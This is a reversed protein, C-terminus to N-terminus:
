VSTLILVKSNSSMVAENLQRTNIQINFLTKHIQVFGTPLSCVYREPDGRENPRRAERPRRAAGGNEWSVNGPLWCGAAMVAKNM